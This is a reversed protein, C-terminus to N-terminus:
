HSGILKSVERGLKVAYNTGRDYPYTMDLNAIYFNKIPTEFDPKNKVFEKDFIPQAFPGKFLYSNFISFQKGQLKNCPFNFIKRLHPLWYDLVEEKNMKLLKDDMDIYKAVYTIHKGGYYQKDIFNSHQVVVMFPLEKVCVSLWYTKEIFPNDTELILNLAHLYQLKQLRKIYTQPFLNNTIKTLVPTPLTSIVADFHEENVVFTAAIKMIESVAVGKRIEVGQKSNTDAIYDIFHQFGGRVYGLKKTRKNIRAWIFAAVINEAYKGFKKRFLEQWLVNWVNKGMTKKLFEKATQKEYLSFYPSFKLFALVMASRLKEPMSLFPFKLFDQPTDIPIIRYNSAGLPAGLIRPSTPNIEKYLSSTEPEQFFIDNFGINKAFNLIDDDSHFLHHYARELVWDWSDSKFGSALGGLQREKEFIVVNHGKKALHYGAALGTFGGGLIAIKM